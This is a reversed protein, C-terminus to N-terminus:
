GGFLRQWLSRRETPEQAEEGSSRTDARAPEERLSEWSSQPAERLPTQPGVRGPQETTTVPTESPEHATEAPAELMPVREVMQALLVDRRRLEEQRADLQRELSEVRSRLEAITEDKAALVGVDPEQGATDQDAAPRMRDTDLLIWVRGHEDKEHAITDRQVRKRIADVTTSLLRAAEQVSVRGISSHGETDRRADEGV